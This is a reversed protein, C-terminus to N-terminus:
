WLYMFFRAIAVFVFLISMITKNSTLPKPSVPPTPPVALEEVGQAAGISIANTKLSVGFFDKDYQINVLLQM